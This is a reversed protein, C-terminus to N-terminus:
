VGTGAKYLLGAPITDTIVTKGAATQSNNVYSLTYTYTLGDSPAGSSLSVSKRLVINANTSVTLTDLNTDTTSSAAVSTSTINLTDTAGSAASSSVTGAIVVGFSQGPQLVPTVTIPTSNDPRGDGNADAYIVLGSLTSGSALAVALNFSDPANGTNTVTHAFYVPAAPFSRVSRPDTLKVAPVATVTTTVTNSQTSRTVGTGDSYTASAKNGISTGALPTTSQAHASPTLLGGAVLLAFPM